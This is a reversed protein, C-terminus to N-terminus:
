PEVVFVLEQVRYPLASCVLFSWLTLQMLVSRESIRTCPTSAQADRGGHQLRSGQPILQRAIM